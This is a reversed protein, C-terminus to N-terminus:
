SNRSPTTDRDTLSGNDDNCDRRDTPAAHGKTINDHTDNSRFSGLDAM